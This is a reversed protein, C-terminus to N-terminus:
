TKIITELLTNNVSTCIEIRMITATCHYESTTTCIVIYVCFMIYVVIYL